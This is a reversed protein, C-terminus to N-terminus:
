DKEKKILETKQNKQNQHAKGLKQILAAGDCIDIAGNGNQVGQVLLRQLVVIEVESLLVQYSKIDM